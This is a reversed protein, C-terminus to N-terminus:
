GFSRCQTYFGRLCSDCAGCVLTPDVVIRRGLLEVPGDIVRGCFEHGLVETQYPYGSEPHTIHLDTGGIGAAEVAILAEGPAPSPVPDERVEFTGDGMYHMAVSTRPLTAAGM